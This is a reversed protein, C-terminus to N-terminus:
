KCSYESYELPDYSESTGQNEILGISLIIKEFELHLSHYQIEEQATDEQTTLSFSILKETPGLGCEGAASLEAIKGAVLEDYFSATIGLKSSVSEADQGEPYIIQAPAFASASFSSLSLVLSLLLFKM